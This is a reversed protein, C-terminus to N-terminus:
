RPSGQESVPGQSERGNQRQGFSDGPGTRKRVLRNM